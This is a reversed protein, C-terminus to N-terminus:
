PPPPSLELFATAGTARGHERIRLIAMWSRTGLGPDLVRLVTGSRTMLM